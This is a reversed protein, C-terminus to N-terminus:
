QGSPKHAQARVIRDPMQRREGFMTFQRQLLLEQTPKELLHHACLLDLQQEAILVEQHISGQQLVLCQM